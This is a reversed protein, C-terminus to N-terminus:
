NDNRTILYKDLEHGLMSYTERAKKFGDEITMEEIGQECFYVKDPINQKSLGLKTLKKFGVLGKLELSLGRDEAVIEIIKSTMGLIFDETLDTNASDQFSIYIACQGDPTTKTSDGGIVIRIPSDNQLYSNNEPVSILVPFETNKNDSPKIEAIAILKIFKVSKSEDTPPTKLHELITETYEQGVILRDSTYTYSFEGHSINLEIKDAVNVSAINFLPNILFIGGNLASVRAYIQPLDGIGYVPYLYPVKSHVGISGIFNKLAECMEKVTMQDDEAKMNRNVYGYRLLDVSFADGFLEFLKKSANESGDIAEFDIPKVDTYIEKEFDKTSNVYNEEDPVMAKVLKQVRELGRVFNRKQILGMLETKLVEAKSIPLKSLKKDKLICIEKCAQFTLYNDVGMSVLEETSYSESFIFRPELDINYGRFGYKELLSDLTYDSHIIFDSFLQDRTESAKSTAMQNLDRINLSKITGSYTASTDITLINLKKKSLAASLIADPLDTGLVIYDFHTSDLVIKEEM